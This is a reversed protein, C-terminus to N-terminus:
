IAPSARVYTTPPPEIDILWRTITASNDALDNKVHAEEVNAASAITAPHVFTLHSLDLLNDLILRYDSKIYLREAKAGCEPDELWHFDTLPTRDAVAADGMWIWVWGWREVLPYSRIAAAKPIQAQGPVRICNGSCDFVLGHYGCQLTDGILTGKHLPFRRHICRDELAVVAGKETRFLVVPENLMIRGLPQRGVEEAMRCRVLSEEPVNL